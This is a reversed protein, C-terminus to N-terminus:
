IYFSVIISHIIDSLGICCMYVIAILFLEKKSFLCKKTQVQQTNDDM